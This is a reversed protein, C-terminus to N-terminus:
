RTFLRVVAYSFISFVGIYVPDKSPQSTLAIILILGMTVAVIKDLRKLLM